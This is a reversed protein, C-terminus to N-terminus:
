LASAFQEAKVEKPVIREPLDLDSVSKDDEYASRVAERAIGYSGDGMVDTFIGILEEIDELSPDGDIDGESGIEVGEMRGAQTYAVDGVSDHYRELIIEFVDEQDM